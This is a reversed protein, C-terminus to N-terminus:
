LSLGQQQQQQQGNMLAEFNQSAQQGFFKQDVFYQVGELSGVQKISNTLAKVEDATLTQNVTTDGKKATLVINNDKKELQLTDYNPSLSKLDLKGTSSLEQVLKGQEEVNGMLEKTSLLLTLAMKLFTSIFDGNGQGDESSLLREIQQQPDFQQQAQQMFQQQQAVDTTLNAKHSALADISHNHSDRVEMNLDGQSSLEISALYDLPNIKTAKAEDDGIQKRVEFHLHAGKSDGTNGSLGLQEGANVIQGVKVDQRSLHMYTINMKSGDPRDYQVQVYNGAGGPQNAVTVVKGGNETAYVPTGVPCSIDIGGHKHDGRDVGYQSTMVCYKGGNINLPLAYKFSNGLYATVPTKGNTQQQNVFVDSQVQTSAVPNYPNNANYQALSKFQGSVVMKDYKSLDHAKITSNLMQEYDEATAYGGQKIAHVWTKYDLPSVGKLLSQYRKAQLVKAHDWFSTLADPYKKFAENPADDTARVCQGNWFGKVGFYNNAAHSLHSNGDGSEVCAQSLTISAPVGTRRMIEMALPAYQEIFEERTNKQDAM